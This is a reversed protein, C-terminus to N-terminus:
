MEKGRRHGGNAGPVRGPCYKHEVVDGLEAFEFADAAIENGIDRVFETGREGRNLAKSFSQNGSSQVIRLVAAAEEVDDELMSSSERAEGLIQQLQRLHVGIAQFKFYMGDFDRLQDFGAIFGRAM